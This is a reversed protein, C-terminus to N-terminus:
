FYCFYTYLV